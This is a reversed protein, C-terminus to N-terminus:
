SAVPRGSLWRSRSASSRHGPQLASETSEVILLSKSWGTTISDGLLHALCGLGAVYALWGPAAAIFKAIVATGLAAVVVITGPAHFDQGPPCLKIARVAMAPLFSCM